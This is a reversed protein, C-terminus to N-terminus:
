GVYEWVVITGTGSGVIGYLTTEDSAPIIREQRYTLFHENTTAVDSPGIYVTAGSSVNFLWLGKRDPFAVAPIAVPTTGIPVVSRRFRKWPASGLFLASGLTTAGSM